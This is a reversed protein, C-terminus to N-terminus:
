MRHLFDFPFRKSACSVSRDVLVHSFAFNVTTMHGLASQKIYFM